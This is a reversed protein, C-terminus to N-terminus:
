SEESLATLPKTKISVKGPNRRILSKIQSRVEDTIDEEKLIKDINGVGISGYRVVIDLPLLALIQDERDITRQQRMSAKVETRETRFELLNNEEMYSLIFQDLEAVYNRLAAAASDIRSREDVAEEISQMGLVGGGKTHLMLEKCDGKRVCWRCDPNLSEKTGDSLWVRAALEQLYRWTAINDDRTFVTGVKDYRLLDYTVWIRKANPYKIQAALAYSRPQIRNKLEEPQVPLAVTKYDVVEIEDGDKLSDCRDWIYTFPVSKEEGLVTFRLDFTEKLETSLVERGYWSQREHWDKLMKLGEDYRERGSFYQFYSIGYLTELVGFDTNKLYHGQAVWLELAGHCASGLGAASGQMDPTKDIYSAKYGAECNEFTLGASASLSAPEM